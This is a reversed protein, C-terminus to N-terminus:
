QQGDFIGRIAAYRKPGARYDYATGATDVGVVRGAKVVPRDWWKTWHPGRIAAESYADAARELTGGPAFFDGTGHLQRTLADKQAPSMQWYQWVHGMEHLMKQRSLAGSMWIEPQNPRDPGAAGAFGDGLGGGTNDPASNSVVVQGSYTPVYSRDVWRQLAALQSPSFPHQLDNVLTTRRLAPAQPAPTLSKKPQGVTARRVVTRRQPAAYSMSAGFCLFAALVVLWRV